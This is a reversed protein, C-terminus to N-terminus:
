FERQNLFDVLEQFSTRSASSVPAQGIELMAAQCYEQIREQCHSRARTNELIELVRRVGAQDISDSGYFRMLDQQDRGGSNDWAYVVPYTKKRHLIDSGVPKGTVAQKGWIGLADDRLQFAIGLNTGFNVLPQICDRDEDVLMAGMEVACAILAATKLKVMHLYEASSVAQRREFDIDLHQGEILRLSTQDLLSLAQLLTKTSVGLRQLRMLSVNALVRMAMGANIAQAKGYVVWVTPRHRRERDGDQIDDHILSFNHVLEIAAAAPLAQQVDGRLAECVMLCLSSRLAKGNPHSAPRGDADMYGLHYRLMNYLPSAHSDLLRVIEEDVQDRYCQMLTPLMM